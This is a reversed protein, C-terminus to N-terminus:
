ACSCSLRRPCLRLVQIRKTIYGQQKNGGTVQQAKLIGNRKRKVFIHSELVKKRQKATLSKWHMPKFSNQGHLQKMEKGVSEEAEKGWKKLAAKLLVQAMVMRVIDARQHIGKSMLKISMKALAMSADSTGLSTNIQALVVQYKNRQM